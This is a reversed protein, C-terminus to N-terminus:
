APTPGYPVETAGAEVTVEGSTYATINARIAKLGPAPVWYLGETTITTARTGSDLSIADISNWGKRLSGQVTITASFTGSVELLVGARGSTPITEGVAASDTGDHLTKVRLAM